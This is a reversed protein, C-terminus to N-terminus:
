SDLWLAQCDAGYLYLQYLVWTDNVLISSYQCFLMPKPWFEM